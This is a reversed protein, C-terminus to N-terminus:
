LGLGESNAREAEHKHIFIYECSNSQGWAQRSAVLSGEINTMFEDELVKFGGIFEKKQLHEKDHHRIVIIYFYRLCQEQSRTDM